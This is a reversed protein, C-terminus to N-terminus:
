YNFNRFFYLLQLFFSMFILYSLKKLIIFHYQNVKKLM